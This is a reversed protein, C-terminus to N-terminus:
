LNDQVERRMRDNDESEERAGASEGYCGCEDARGKGVVKEEEEVVM